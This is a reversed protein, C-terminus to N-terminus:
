RRGPPSTCQRDPFVEPLRREDAVRVQALRVREALLPDVLDNGLLELNVGLKAVDDRDARHPLGAVMVRAGAVRDEVGVGPVELEFPNLVIHRGRGLLDEVGFSQAVTEARSQEGPTQHLALESCRRQAHQQSAAHKSSGGSTPGSTPFPSRSSSCRTSSRSRLKTRTGRSLARCRTRARDAVVQPSSRLWRGRHLRARGGGVDPTAVTAVPPEVPNPPTPVQRSRACSRAAPWSVPEISSQPLLTGAHRELDTALPRLETHSSVQTGSQLLQVSHVSNGPSHVSHRRRTCDWPTTCESNQPMSCCLAVPRKTQGLHPM